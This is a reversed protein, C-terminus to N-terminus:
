GSTRFAENRRAPGQHSVEPLFRAIRVPLWWNWRGLLRMTAPVLVIRVLTADLLVGITLGVGIEKIVTMGSFSFTVFVTVMILAAATIVRGTLALGGAVAEEDSRGSLHLERVRTLLFVEYDTSLGFLTAFLLIPVIITLQGPPDLGILGAGVGHQFVSTLVGYSALISLCTMVVAKVPLWFSRLFLLLVLFTVLMVGAIMAPFRGYVGRDFDHVSATTGGVLVEAGHAALEPGRDTRLDRLLGRVEASHGDARPIVVLYTTDARGDLNAWASSRVRSLPDFALAMPSLAEYRGTELATPWADVREIRPDQELREVWAGLASRFGPKWLGGPETHVTVYCPSLEGAGFAAQLADFGQRSEYAVSIAKSEPFGKIMGLTPWALLAILVCSGLTWRWPRRMVTRAWAQWHHAVNADRIPRWAQLRHGLLGLLAPLLTLAAALAFLTVLIIAVSMSRLVTANTVLAVVGMAACLTLGSYLISRGSTQLTRELAPQISHGAALEERFRSIYLLSFDIGLGLGLMSAANPAFTSVTDFRGLVALAAMTLTVAALGLAVPLLGAWFSGFVMVVMALIFPLTYTEVRRLDAQSAADIDVNFSVPGTLYTDLPGEAKLVQRYRPIRREIEAPTGQYSVLAFLVKGTPSVLRRDGTSYPSYVRAIGPEARMRDLAQGVAERYAPSQWDLTDSRFVVTDTRSTDWGFGKALRRDAMASETDELSWGGGRLVQPLTTALLGGAVVLVLWAALIPKHWAQCRAAWWAFLDGM